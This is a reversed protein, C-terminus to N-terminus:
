HAFLCHSVFRLNSCYFARSLLQSPYGSPRCSQASNPDFYACLVAHYISKSPQHPNKKEKETILCTLHTVNGCLTTPSCCRQRMLRARCRLSLSERTPLYRHQYSRQHQLNTCNWHPCWEVSLCSWLNQEPSSKGIAVTM